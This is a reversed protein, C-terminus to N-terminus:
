IIKSKVDLLVKSIDLIRSLLMHMTTTCQVHFFLVLWDISSFIKLIHKKLWHNNNQCLCEPCVFLSVLKVTEEAEIM